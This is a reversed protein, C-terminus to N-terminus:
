GSQISVAIETQAGSAMSMISVTRGGKRATLRHKDDGADSLSWGRNQLQERYFGHVEETSATTLFTVFMSHNPVSMSQQVVAGPYTPVDAPFDSPLKGAAPIEPVVEPAAGSLDSIEPAPSEGAAATASEREAGCGAAVAALCHALILASFRKRFGTM